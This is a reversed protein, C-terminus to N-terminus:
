LVGKDGKNLIAEFHTLAEIPVKQLTEVKSKLNTEETSLESLRTELLDINKEKEKMLTTFEITARDVESFANKLLDITKTLRQKYSTPEEIEIDFM